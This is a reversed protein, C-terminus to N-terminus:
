KKIKIKDREDCDLQTGDMKHADLKGVKICCHIAAASIIKYIKWNWGDEEKSAVCHITKLPNSTKSSSNLDVLGIIPGLLHALNPSKVNKCTKVIQTM